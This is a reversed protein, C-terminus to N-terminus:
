DERLFIIPQKPCRALSLVNAHSILLALLRRDMKGEGMKLTRLAQRQVQESTYDLSSLAHLLRGILTKMAAELNIEASHNTSPSFPM